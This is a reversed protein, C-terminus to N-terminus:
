GNGGESWGCPSTQLSLCRGPTLLSVAPRVQVGHLRLPRGASIWGDGDLLECSGVWGLEGGLGAGAHPLSSAPTLKPHELGNKHTEIGDGGAQSCSPDAAGGGVKFPETINSFCKELQNRARQLEKLELWGVAFMSQRLPLPPLAASCCWRRWGESGPRANGPCTGARCRGRSPSVAGPTM